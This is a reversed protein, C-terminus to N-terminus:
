SIVTTTIQIDTAVVGGVGLGTAITFGADGGSAGDADYSLTGGGFVFTAANADWQTNAGGTVNAGDYAAGNNTTSFNVGDTLTGLAINGFASQLFQFFDTGSAFGNITDGAGGVGGGDSTLSYYFSDAQDGGNLIDIGGGGFLIDAGDNGTITDAGDGGILTNAGSNGTLTNALSNGTGNIDSGGTLTLNEVNSATGTLSFTVSSQVLDTGSGTSEDVIDGSNDVVYTDDNAGGTMTDAGTGGDLVDDGAGGTLTDAGAGGTITDDGSGGDLINNSANGIITNAGSNGTGDIAGGADLLTLNELRSDLTFSVSTQVTDTGGGPSENVTDGAGIVYTDDGDGGTLVNAGSNGTLINNLSNGTGNIDGSGTLTLNEVNAGDSSLDFTISSEITDTGSGVGSLETVSDLVNDVVYTDNGDGGTMTDGLLGGDIRNSGADGTLVDAFASGTLNEITAYTDGNAEGVTGGSALNATVTGAANAYSATDTGDGGILEDAGDRGELVNNGSNGTLKNVGSNGTGNINGTGTLELNEVNATLTYTASSQVTDTGSGAGSGEVVTDGATVVYTDDGDLGTLVNNGSNGTLVNALANGTGNINSGGTLTLNEVFNSLTYTAATSQVLDTGEGDLETVIDGSQDVVYTDDGQGGVLTDIGGQGDLTDNGGLGTLTNAVSNGTLVNNLSNGTGDITDTGTLTLNEVTAANGDLVFTISSQVLDTGSGTSENVTDGANDVVYTDNGAGGTMADAGTGGDLTDNGGNGTLTDNGLGGSLSNNGSNGTLINALDNGTGNINSGGTLTLNEVTAANGTLSFNVSSQVLDTGGGASEDVTDGANDVVYTDNGAGGTMADAGAGGDFTDNGGNGTLTDNGIGGSLSNNGSNGTLVNALDNGTGDINGTGTLTLNEVTSANGTLSFTVGSQVLDTGGGASEDVTDGANDVVYTDNGAGGTMADAGAGGDLTDNGGNGTLTDNGLGGSLSNNGSNGTLINALDNGTGNINSGGTLTLNEVNAGNTSLDFTLSSQITDTGEGANETVTDGADDVVYIDDGTGGTMADAGTGGDLTDNGGNGTLTNANANGTLVNNLSNGTGSTATGTLTLNEVNAGNTSLDFSLSSQITDTGEGANETVTDGADDVVYTDDGAGGTMTDAGVGGNLTNNGSNGTLSNASGNGTGDINGTGTLTLNEVNAGLTFTAISSVSDTGEGVAETVIDGGNDVVYSDDGLGGAMTDAGGQGDLTDNGANGTLTNANANGTLVNNLSNGTGTVAAGTLTLNEVNDGLTFNVSSTVSDIGEGLAETVTDGANDVTYSDDGAGGTMSDAGAGGDLTDNGGKGTLTDAGAGGTLVNASDNGTLVNDLGNGTGNAATGTLTLNEVNAGNASLDFSISSQITDTGEGLAETVTDGANDVVYIDNGAGGTMADAGAGGDLLDNGANGTLTDTGDNGFLDDNKSGGTLTDNGTGGTLVVRKGASAANIVDDGGEGQVKVTNDAIDTGTLDGITISDSASGLGLDLTEFNDLTVSANTVTDLLVVRGGVNSITLNNAATPAASITAVDNGGAGGVVTINEGAGPFSGTASVPAFPDIGDGPDPLPDPRDRPSVGGIPRPPEAPQFPLPVFGGVAESIQGGDGEGPPLYRAGPGGDAPVDGPITPAEGGESGAAPAFSPAESWQSVAVGFIDVFAAFDPRDIVVPERFLSVVQATQLESQLVIAAGATVVRTFGLSNDPNRLLTFVNEVAEAAARGAVRGNHVQLTAVPTRVVAGPDGSFSSSRHSFGFQGHLVFYVSQPEQGARAPAISEVLMRGKEGLFFEADNAFSVSISAGDRTAVIDGRFIQTGPGANVTTGDVRTIVSDGNTGKVFGVSNDNGNAQSVAQALQAPALQASATPVAAGQAINPAADPAAGQATDPATGGPASTVPNSSTPVTPNAM